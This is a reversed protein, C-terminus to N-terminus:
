FESAFFCCFPSMAIMPIRGFKNWLQHFFQYHGKVISIIQSMGNLVIKKTKKSFVQM